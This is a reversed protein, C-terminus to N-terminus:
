RQVPNLVEDDHATAAQRQAGAPESASHWRAATWWSRTAIESSSAREGAAAACAMAEASAAIRSISM